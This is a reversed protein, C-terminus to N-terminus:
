CLPKFWLQNYPLENGHYHTQLGPHTLVHQQHRLLFCVISEKLLLNEIKRYYVFRRKISIEKFASKLIQNKKDRLEKNLVRNIFYTDSYLINFIDWEINESVSDKILFLDGIEFVDRLTSEDLDPLIIINLSIGVKECLEKLWTATMMYLNSNLTVLNLQGKYENSLCQNSAKSVCDKSSVFYRDATQFDDGLRSVLHNKNIQSFLFERFEKDQTIGNKSLNFTLFLAGNEITESKIWSATPPSPLFSSLPKNTFDFEPITWIEITDIHAREKFYLLNAELYLRDETHDKVKYPGTGIPLQDFHGGYEEYANEPIISAEIATLFKLFLHNPERLAITVMLPHPVQIEIINSFIQNLFSPHLVNKIRNFTYKVDHGTFGKGNHFSISKRLYFTFQTAESNIEIYHALHPEVLDNSPNYKVLTDFIQKVINLQEVFQLKEPSIEKIKYSAPLRLIDINKDSSQVAEYGFKNHLVDLFEKQTSADFHKLQSYCWSLDGDAIKQHIVQHFVEINTKLFEISSINGRGPKPHWKIWKQQQMEKVIYKANRSTCDCITSIQLINAKILTFTQSDTNLTKYLRFYYDALQM